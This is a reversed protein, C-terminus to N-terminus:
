VEIFNFQQQELVLVQFTRSLACLTNIKRWKWSLIHCTLVRPAHHSLNQGEQSQLIRHYNIKERTFPASALQLDVKVAVLDCESVRLVPSQLGAPASHCTSHQQQVKCFGHLVDSLVQSGSQWIKKHIRKRQYLFLNNWM